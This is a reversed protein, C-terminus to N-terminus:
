FASLFNMIDDKVTPWVAIYFGPGFGDPGPASCRNMGKVAQVAKQETFPLTLMDNARPLDQYLQNCNFHWCANGATGMIGKYYETLAQVKAPHNTVQVGNIAISRITNRRM